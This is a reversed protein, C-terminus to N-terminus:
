PPSSTDDSPKQKRNATMRLGGSRLAIVPAKESDYIKKTRKRSARSGEENFIEFKFGPWTQLLGKEPIYPPTLARKKFPSVRTSVADVSGELQMKPNLDYSGKNVAKRPEVKLGSAREHLETDQAVPVLATGTKPDMERKSTRETPPRTTSQSM